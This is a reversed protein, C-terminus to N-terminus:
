SQDILVGGGCVCVEWEFVGGVCVCVQSHDGSQAHLSTGRLATRDVEQPGVGGSSNGKREQGQAGHGPGGDQLLGDCHM